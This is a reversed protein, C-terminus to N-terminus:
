GAQRQQERAALTARAETCDEWQCRCRAAPPLDEVSVGELVDDAQQLLAAVGPYRYLWDALPM